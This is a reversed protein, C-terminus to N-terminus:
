LKKLSNSEIEIYVDKMYDLIKLGQCIFVLEVHMNTIISLFGFFFAIVWRSIENM